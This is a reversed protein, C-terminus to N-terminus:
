EEEVPAPHVIATYHMTLYDKHIIKIEYRGPKDFSLGHTDKDAKIKREGGPGDITIESGSQLDIFTMEDKGDAIANLRNFRCPHIPKRAAQMKAQAEKKTPIKTSM